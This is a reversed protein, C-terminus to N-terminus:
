PIETSIPKPGRGYWRERRRVAAHFNNLCGIMFQALVFDPTDSGNEISHKNLVERLEAEFSPICAPVAEQEAREDM